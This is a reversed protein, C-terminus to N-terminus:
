AQEKFMGLLQERPVRWQGGVKVSPFKKDVCLRYITMPHIRLISASEAITLFHPLNDMEMLDGGTKLVV